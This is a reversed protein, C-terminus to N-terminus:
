RKFENSTSNSAHLRSSYFRDPYRRTFSASMPSTLTKPFCFNCAANSTWIKKKMHPLGILILQNGSLKKNHIEQLSLFPAKQCASTVWLNLRTQTFNFTEVRLMESDNALISQFLATIMLSNIPDSTIGLFTFLCPGPLKDQSGTTVARNSKM